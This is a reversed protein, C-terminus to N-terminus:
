APSPTHVMPEAPAVPDIIKRVPRTGGDRIGRYLNLYRRTCAPLSFLTEVRMLAAAGLRARLPADEYLRGIAEGLARPDKVPVLLGSEDDVVADINGGVRTAVVPLAHAMKELLSNSFGEEHSPLVAMDAAELPRQADLQEDLWLINNALGLTEAQRQLVTGAGADRGLLVLRWPGRLRDRIQALAQLLDDHGKYAFLNAIMAIVFANAPIGLASRAAGRREDTMPPPLDIGNHILGIKDPAHCEDVLEAAVANSNGLLARMSKHFHRELRALLPHNRQYLALSRRSAIKIVNSIGLSAAAGVLYGEPLFFHVIDPKSRRIHRRLAAGGILSRALRSAATSGGFLPVGCATLKSELRGGRALVFVSVDLGAARLEPLVRVLHMEAGGIDLRPVVILVHPDV